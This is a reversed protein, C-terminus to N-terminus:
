VGALTFWADPTISMDTAARAVKPDGLVVPGLQARAVLRSMHDPTVTARQTTSLADLLASVTAFRVKVFGPALSPDIHALNAVIDAKSDVPTPLNLTPKSDVLGQWAAYVPDDAPVYAAKATSWVQSQDSGVVFYWDSPNYAM